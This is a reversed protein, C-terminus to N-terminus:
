TGSEADPSAGRSVIPMIKAGPFLKQHGARVVTQGPELGSRVEVTGARRLGLEVPTKAVTSDPNVVFVLTQDGETLVAESPITMADDRESLTASVNASMGPRFREGPNDSRAIVEASRTEPDLVPDVLDITGAVFEGPFATTSIQVEAGRQLKSVFREPASFTVKIRNLQALETIPAGPQLFAGPSVQRSGVRASFPAVIRTKALRAAALDVDSEAIKLEASADDLDQPTGARQEVVLKVRDFAARKQDRIAEARALAARLESDDLQALLAGKEVSDGERFPLRVVIGPIESVVTIAEAAEITGVAEFRETVRETAVVATEVPTPPRQFGGGAAAGDGGGCGAHVTAALMALAAIAAPGYLPRGLTKSFAFRFMM